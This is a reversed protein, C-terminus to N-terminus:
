EMLAQMQTLQDRLRIVKPFNPGYQGLADVYMEKLDTYKEELHELVTDQVIIGVQGENGKVLDYVSERQVRDSEATTFDKNLEELRQDNITGKEGLNVNLKKSEYDVLAKQSKEM